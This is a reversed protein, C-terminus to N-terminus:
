EFVIRGLQLREGSLGLERLLCSRDIGSSAQQLKLRVPQQYATADVELVDGDAVRLRVEASTFRGAEHGNKLLRLEELRSYDTLRWVVTGTLETTHATVAAVEGGRYEAGWWSGVPQLRGQYMGLQCVLLAAVLLFIVVVLLRNLWCGGSLAAEKIKDSKDSM